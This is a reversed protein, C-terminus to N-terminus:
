LGLPDTRPMPPPIPKYFPDNQSLQHKPILAADDSPDIYKNDPPPISRAVPAPVDKYVALVNRVVASREVDNANMEILEIGGNAEGGGHDTANRTQYNRFKGIFDVLGNSMKNPLDSQHVDGTIVMKSGEGIRTLLMLMQNPSSNQMEDAIIFCNKFTRGRMMGLPSIEVSGSQIMADLERQSYHELFIDFLPLLWPDMKRLLNGPLFGLEEEVSVVPRTLVIRQVNGYKLEEVARCCAFLTKGCGAPGIGFVVSTNERHLADVYRRQNDGKPVYNSTGVMLSDQKRRKSIYRRTEFPRAKFVDGSRPFTHKFVGVPRMFSHIVSTSWMFTFVVGWIM